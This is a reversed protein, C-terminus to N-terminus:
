LTAAMAELKDAREKWGSDAVVGFDATIARLFEIAAKRQSPLVKTKGDECLHVLCWAAQSIKYETVQKM